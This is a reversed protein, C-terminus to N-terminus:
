AVNLPREEREAYQYQTNNVTTSLTTKDDTLLLKALRPLRTVKM